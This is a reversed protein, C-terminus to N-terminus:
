AAGGARVASALTREIAFASLWEPVFRTLAFCEANVTDNRSGARATAVRGVAETVAPLDARTRAGPAAPMWSLAAGSFHVGFTAFPEGRVCLLDFDIDMGFCGKM